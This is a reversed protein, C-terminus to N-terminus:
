PRLPMIISLYQENVDLSKPRIVIPSQSHEFELIIEPEDIVALTDMLYKANVNIETEEGNFESEIVEQGHGLNQNGSSLIILDKKLLIKVGNTQENSFTRIRKIGTYFKSKDVNLKFSAKTPIVSQYKPYERAILRIAIEEKRTNAVVYNQDCYLSIYEDEAYDALRKLENVGKKPFLIGEQIYNSMEKEPSFEYIALRHGDIAVVKLKNTNTSQLFIGNLFLRTEDSSMAYSVKHIFERIESAKLTLINAPRDFNLQPYESASVIVLNFTAQNYKVQLTNNSKNLELSLESEPLEKLLDYFYKSNICFIQESDCKAEINVKASVELDTAALYCHDMTFHLLCHNLLPRTSKRDIVGIVKSIASLLEKSNITIM